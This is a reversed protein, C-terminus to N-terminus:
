KPSSICQFNVCAASTECCDGKTNCSENLQHCKFCVPFSANPTMVGNVKAPANYQKLGPCCEDPFDPVISANHTKMAHNETVCPQCYTPAGTGVAAFPECHDTPNCCQASSQCVEGKGPPSSSTKVCQQCAKSNTNDNSVCFASGCCDLSSACAGDNTCECYGAYFLRDVRSPDFDKYRPDGVVLLSVPPRGGVGGAGAGNGSGAAGSAGGAGTGGAGGGGTPLPALPDPTPLEALDVFQIPLHLFGLFGQDNTAVSANGEGSILTLDIEPFGPNFQVIQKQWTKSFWFFKIRLKGYITGVLIDKIQAEAGFDYYANFRFKRPPGQPYLMNGNAVMGQLDAPLPREDNAAQLKLGAGAHMPLSVVGLSVDGSIGVKASLAGFDFGVGLFMSVGAGAFPAFTADVKALEENTNTLVTNVIAQPTLSLTLNGALGYAVFAEITLNMPIPGIAFNFNAIQQTERRGNANIADDPNDLFPISFTPSKPTTLKLLDSLQAKMAVVQQKYYRIFLNVTEEPSLDACSKFQATPTPFNAPIGKDAAELLQHCLDPSYRQGNSVLAKEQRILEQADRLSKLARNVLKQIKDLTDTCAKREEPTTNASKLQAATDDGLLTPLFDIGFLQLTADNDFGCRDVHLRGLANLIEVEGEIKFLSFKAAATASAQARADFNTDGLTLPKGFNYSIELNPDFDFRIPGAGGGTGQKDNFPPSKDSIAKAPPAETDPVVYKCWPHEGLPFDCAPEGPGGCGAPKALPYPASPISTNPEPFLDSAPFPTPTLNSLPDSVPNINTAVTNPDPCIETTSCRQLLNDNSLSPCDPGAQGCAFRGFCVGVCNHNIDKDACASTRTPDICYFRQPDCQQGAACNANTQCGIPQQAADLAACDYVRGCTSGPPCIPNAVSCTAGAVLSSPVLGCRSLEESSFQKCGGPPPVAAFGKCHAACDAAYQPDAGKCKDTCDAALAKAEAFNADQDLGGDPLLHDSPFEAAGDVCPGADVDDTKGCRDCSLGPFFQCACVSSPAPAARRLPQECVFGHAATCNADTWTGDKGLTLCQGTSPAGSHWSLFRYPVPLGNQWFPRRNRAGNYSWAWTGDDIRDNGGVWAGGNAVNALWLNEARDDIEALSRGPEQQCLAEAQDWSVAGSCIMYGSDRFTKFVCGQPALCAPVGCQGQGDCTAQQRSGSCAEVACAIGARQLNPQGVCGCPGPFTNNPDDPCLDICDPTRDLDRDLESVGCNCQGPETKNPDHPCGDKLDDLVDGDSDPIPDKQCHDTVGLACLL